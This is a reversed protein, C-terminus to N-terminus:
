VIYAYEAQETFSLLFLVAPIQIRTETYVHLLDYRHWQDCKQASRLPFVNIDNEIVTNRQWVTAPFYCEGVIDRNSDILFALCESCKLM